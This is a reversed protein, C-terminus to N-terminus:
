DHARKRRRAHEKATESHLDRVVPILPNNPDKEKLYKWYHLTGREICFLEIQSLGSWRSKEVFDVFISHGQDQLRGVEHMVPRSFLPGDYVFTHFEGREGCPDVTQPLEALLARDYHRGAFSPDLGTKPDFAAVRARFGLDIFQHAVDTTDEGWLPFIAKMGVSNLREERYARVDELLIDGFAVTNVGEEKARDMAQAMAEDYQENSCPVPLVVEVLEIGLADAQEKLISRRLGHMSTRDYDQTVTTLLKVVRYNKWRPDHLLRYLALCCDKGGSWSLYIPEM